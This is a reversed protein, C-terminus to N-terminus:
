MMKKENEVIRKRFLYYTSETPVMDDTNILGIASRTLLNFRTQEFIQDDSLGLAEKLIM